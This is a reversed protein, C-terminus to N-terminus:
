AHEREWRLTDIDDALDEVEKWYAEAARRCSACLKPFEEPTLIVPLSCVPEWWDFKGCASRDITPFFHNQKGVGAHAVFNEQM